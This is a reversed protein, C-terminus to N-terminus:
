LLLTKNGIIKASKLVLNKAQHYLSLFAVLPAFSSDSVMRCPNWWSMDCGVWRIDCYKEQISSINM